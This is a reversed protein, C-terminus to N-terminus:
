RSPAEPWHAPGHQNESSCLIAPGSPAGFGRVESGDGSGEARRTSAAHGPLRADKRQRKPLPQPLEPTQKEHLGTPPEHPRSIVQRKSHLLLGRVRWARGPPPPANRRCSALPKLGLRSPSPGETLGRTPAKPRTDGAPKEQGHSAACFAAKIQFGLSTRRKGQAPLGMLQTNRAHQDSKPM